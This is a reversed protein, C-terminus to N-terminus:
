AITYYYFNDGKDRTITVDNTFTVLNSGADTLRVVRKVSTNLIRAETLVFSLCLTLLLNVFM